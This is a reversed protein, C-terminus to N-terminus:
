GKAFLEEELPLKFGKCENMKLIGLFPIIRSHNLTWIRRTEMLFKNKFETYDNMYDKPLEDVAKGYLLCESFLHIRILRMEPVQKVTEGLACTDFFAQAIKRHEKHNIHLRSGLLNIECTFAGRKNLQSDIYNIFSAIAKTSSSATTYM